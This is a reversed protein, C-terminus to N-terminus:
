PANRQNRDSKPRDNKNAKATAAAARAAETERSELLAAVQEGTAALHDKHLGCARAVDRALVADMLARHENDVNRRLRPRPHATLRMRRYRESQLYLQGALHLIWPSDCAAILAGHFASHRAEWAAKADPESGPVPAKALRHFAGLVGAEWADDGKAIARALADGEILQRACIIDWLDASSVEASRFGRQGNGIVLREVALRSLAERLPSIGVGYREELARFRLPAGAGFKGDLLDERLRVYAAEAVTKAPIASAALEEPALARKM